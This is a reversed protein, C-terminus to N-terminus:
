CELLQKQATRRAGIVGAYTRSNSHGILWNHGRTRLWKLLTQEFFQRLLKRIPWVDQDSSGAASMIMGEAFPLEATDLDNLRIVM